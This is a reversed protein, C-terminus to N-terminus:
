FYSGGSSTQGGKVVRSMARRAGCCGVKSNFLVDGRPGSLWSLRRGAECRAQFSQAESLVSSTSVYFFGACVRNSADRFIMDSM